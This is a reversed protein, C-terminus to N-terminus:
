PTLLQVTTAGSNRTVRIDDEIDGHTELTVDPSLIELAGAGARADVPESAPVRLWGTRTHISAHCHQYWGIGSPPGTQAGIMADGGLWATAVRLPETSIVREVSREGRFSELHPRVEHPVDPELVAVCPGFCMDHPHDFPRSPDPFPASDQGAASWIWLGLPTAHTTMEMGYARDYPGCLNRMGAHYFLAVDSWLRAEMDAGLDGLVGNTSRWMALAWLDIGYYTPSNYELFTGHEDFHAWVERALSEARETRGSWRELWAKMLAVNAYTPPVRDDPEGEVALTIARRMEDVLAAPLSPAHRDCVVALTTGIFQRWNPDYHVWMVPDAPPDPEEPARRFTGDYPTGALQFQQALVSEIAATARETRGQELLGLAYWATDRVMHRDRDVTWLLGADPDWLDDMWAMSASLVDTMAAGLM